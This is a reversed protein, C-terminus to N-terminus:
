PAIEIFKVRNDFLIACIQEAVCDATLHPRNYLEEFRDEFGRYRNINFNTKTLGLRVELICTNPYEVRLMEGFDALAQKSLSYVLDNGWYQRNNTSTINVIKCNHNQELAKQSLLVPAILNTNLINEVCTRDHQHFPVKGGIGTAACNILMDVPPMDFLQVGAVDSLDVQARNIHVVDHSELQAALAAGIGSSTGTIAIKM